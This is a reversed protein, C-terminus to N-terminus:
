RRYSRRCFASQQSKLMKANLLIVPPINYKVLVILIYMYMIAAILAQLTCPMPTSGELAAIHVLGGYHDRCQVM